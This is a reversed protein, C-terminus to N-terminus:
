CSHNVFDVILKNVEHAHERFVYHGAQNFAHFQTRGVTSAIIHLLDLGVKLPASPDNVGWIILTPAKLQGAKILELTEYKWKQIDPLFLSDLLKNRNARAEAVKPLRAIKVMAEIFDATIHAHLVSNAKPERTVYEEDPVPPPNAELKSYFDSPTCPDDPPLTNSDFIILTKVLEPEDVAIRAIPLAGRSHGISTAGTIGLTRLFAHTHEIVSGMTYDAETRPNDTYGMGLKDFAYVHFHKTLDDFNLSWHYANYYSGYKGGHVLVLPEGSGGEFYRTNFGAVNIFKPNEM